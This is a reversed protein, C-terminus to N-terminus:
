VTAITEVCLNFGTKQVSIIPVLYSCEHQILCYLQIYKSIDVFIVGISLICSNTQKSSHFSDKHLFGRLIGPYIRAFNVIIAIIRDLIGIIRNSQLPLQSVALQRRTLGHVLVATMVNKGNQLHLLAPLGNCEKKILGILCGFQNEGYYIIHLFTALISRDM